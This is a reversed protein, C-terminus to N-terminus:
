LPKVIHSKNRPCPTAWGPQSLHPLLSASGSSVHGMLWVSIRPKLRYATPELKPTIQFVYFAQSLHLKMLDLRLSPNQNLLDRSPDLIFVKLSKEAPNQYLPWPLFQESCYLHKLPLTHLPSVSCLDGAALHLNFSLQYLESQWHEQYAVESDLGEKLAGTLTQVQFIRWFSM